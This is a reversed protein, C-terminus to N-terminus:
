KLSNTLSFILFTIKVNIKYLYNENSQQIELILGFACFCLLGELFTGTDELLEDFTAVVSLDVSV